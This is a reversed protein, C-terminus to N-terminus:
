EDIILPNKLKVKRTRKNSITYYKALYDRQGNSVFHMEFTTPGYKTPPEDAHRVKIVISEIEQGYCVMPTFALIFISLINKM